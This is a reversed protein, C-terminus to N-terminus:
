SLNGTVTLAQDDAIMREDGRRALRNFYNSYKRKLHNIIIWHRLCSKRGVADMAYGPDNFMKRLERETEECM